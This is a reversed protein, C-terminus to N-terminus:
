VKEQRGNGKDGKDGKEGKEGAKRTLEYQKLLEGIATTAAQSVASSAKTSEIVAQANQLNSQALATLATARESRAAELNSNVLLHIESIKRNLRAVIISGVASITAVIILTASTIIASLEPGV